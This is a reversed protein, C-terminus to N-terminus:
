KNKVLIVDEQQIFNIKGTSKLIELIVNGNAYKPVNGSFLLTKLQENEYKFQVNYWRAMQNLINELTTSKFVFRGEKWAVYISPDVEKIITNQTKKDFISQQNPMLAQPYNSLQISGHILTTVINSENPYNQINFETGLVEIQTNQSYVIFPKQPHKAVKFYAEGSILTVERQKSIFRSPFRIKTESNLWVETGDNLTLHFEGGRPITITLTDITSVSLSHSDPVSYQKETLITEQKTDQSVLIAEINQPSLLTIEKETHTEGPRSLYYAGLSILLLALAVYRALYVHLRCKCQTVREIQKWAKKQDFSALLTQKSKIRERNTIQKFLQQHDPNESLWQKLVQEQEETIEGIYWALILEAIQERNM